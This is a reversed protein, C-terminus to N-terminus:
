IIVLFKQRATYSGDFRKPYVLLWSVICIIYISVRKQLMSLCYILQPTLILLKFYVLSISCDENRIVNLLRIFRFNYDYLHFHAYYKTLFFPYYNPYQPDILLLLPHPMSLRDAKIVKFEM